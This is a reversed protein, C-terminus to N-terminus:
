AGARGRRHLVVTLILLLALGGVGYVAYPARRQWAPKMRLPKRAPLPPAQALALPLTVSDFPPGQPSRAEATIRGSGDIRVRLYHYAARYAQVAAEDPESCPTRDYLPAGGGGSVFYAVGKREARQYGHDHGSFVATVQYREFLAVWPALEQWAGCHSGVSFPSHHMLVFRLLAPERSAAALQAELFRTQEPEGPRNSDLVLILLRNYRAAYYRKKAQPFFARFTRGKPDNILEHNGLAPLYPVQAFLARHSDAVGRWGQLDGGVALLDGTGLVLDPDESLVANAVTSSQAAVGHELGREDGFVVVTLPPTSGAAPATSAEGEVAPRGDITLRYRYRRGPALGSLEFHHWVAPGASLSRLPAGGGSPLVLIQAPLALGDPHGINVSFGDPRAGTIIPGLFALVEVPAATPPADQAHLAAARLLLCLGLLWRTM